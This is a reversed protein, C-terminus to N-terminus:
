VESVAHDRTELLNCDVRATQAGALDPISMERFGIHVREFNDALGAANSITTWLKCFGNWKQFGHPCPRSPHTTPPGDPPMSEQLRHWLTGCGNHIAKTRLIGSWTPLRRDSQMRRIWFSKWEHASWMRPPREERAAHSKLPHNGVKMMELTTSTIDM